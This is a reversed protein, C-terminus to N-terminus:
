EARRRCSLEKRELLWGYDIVLAAETYEEAVNEMTTKYLFDTRCRDKYFKLIIFYDDSVSDPAPRYITGLSWDQGYFRQATVGHFDEPNDIADRFLSLIGCNWNDSHFVGRAICCKPEIGYNENECNGKICKM